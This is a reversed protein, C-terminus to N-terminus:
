TNEKKLYGKWVVLYYLKLLHGDAEKAYAASDRIAEMEYEKNDDGREFESVSFEGGKKTTDQVLLSM